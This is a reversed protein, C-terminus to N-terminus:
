DNGLTFRDRRPALWGSGDLASTLSLTSVYRLEGQTGEHYNIPHVKGNNILSTSSSTCPSSCYAIRAARVDYDPEGVYQGQGQVFIEVVFSCMESLMLTICLGYTMFLKYLVPLKMAALNVFVVVLFNRKNANCLPKLTLVIELREDRWMLRWGYEWKSQKCFSHTHLDKLTTTCSSRVEELFFTFQLHRLIFLQPYYTIDM